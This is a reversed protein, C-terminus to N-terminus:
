GIMWILVFVLALGIRYWGFVEMSRTKVYALFLRVVVLAVVFSVVSGGFIALWESQSFVSGSEWIDKGTALIMTPVAL